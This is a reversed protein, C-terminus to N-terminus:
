FCGLINGKSGGQPMKEVKELEESLHEKCLNYFVKYM